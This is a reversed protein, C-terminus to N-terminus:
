RRFIYFSLDRVPLIISLGKADPLQISNSPLLTDVTKIRLCAQLHPKISLQSKSGGAIGSKARRVMGARVMGVVEGIQVM